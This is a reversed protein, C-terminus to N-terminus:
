SFYSQLSCIPTGRREGLDSTFKMRRVLLFYSEKLSGWNGQYRDEIIELTVTIPEQPGRRLSCRGMQIETNGHQSSKNDHLEIVHCAWLGPLWLTHALSESIM